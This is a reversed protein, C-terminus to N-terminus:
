AIDSYGGEESQLSRGQTQNQSKRAFAPMAQHALTVVFDALTAGGPHTILNRKSGNNSPHTATSDVAVGERRPMLAFNLNDITLLPYRSM